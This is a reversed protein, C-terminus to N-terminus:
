VLLSSHMFLVNVSDFLTFLPENAIKFNANLMWIRTEVCKRSVDVFIAHIDGNDHDSGAVQIHTLHVFDLPRPNPIMVTRSTAPVRMSAASYEHRKRIFELINQPSRSSITLWQLFPLLQGSAIKELLPTQMYIGAPLFVQHTYKLCQFLVELDPDFFRLSSQAERGADFISGTVTPPDSLMLYQLNTTHKLLSSYLKIKWGKSDLAEVWLRRLNPLRIIKFLRRDASPNELALHLKELYFMTIYGGDTSSLLRNPKHRIPFTIQFSADILIMSTDKLIGIFYKPTIPTHAMHLIRLQDWPFTLYWLHLGNAQGMELSLSKLRPLSLFVTFKAIEDSTFTKLSLGLTIEDIFRINLSELNPFTGAPLYLFKTTTSRTILTCNLNRIRTVHPSIISYFAHFHTGAYLFHEIYEPIKLKGQTFKLEENFELTLPARRSRKLWLKAINFLNSANKFKPVPNFVVSTWLAPDSLIIFRWRTCVHTLTIRPDRSHPPLIAKSPLSSILIIKLIKTSIDDITAVM